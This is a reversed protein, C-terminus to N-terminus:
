SSPHDLPILNVNLNYVRNKQGDELLCSLKKSFRDILEKAEDLKSEDIAMTMSSINREDVPDHELSDLTKSLFDKQLIKLHETTRKRHRTTFRHNTNKLTGDSVKLFGLQILRDVAFQAKITSINLRKSIWRYDFKFDDCQVLLLIAIHHWTTFAIYAENEIEEFSSAEESDLETFFESDTFDKSPGYLDPVHVSSLGRAELVSQLFRKMKQPPWGLREQLKSVVKLSPLQKGSLIRSMAGPDLQCYQSFARLSYSGNTHIRKELEDRLAQIYFPKSNKSSAM